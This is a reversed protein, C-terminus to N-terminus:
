IIKRARFDDIEARSYGLGSLIEDNHCGFTAPATRIAGPTKSLKVPIGFMKETSGDPQQWDVIM